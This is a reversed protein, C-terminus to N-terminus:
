DNGKWSKNDEESNMATLLNINNDKLLKKGECGNCIFAVFGWIDYGAQSLKQYINMFTRGTTIEDDVILIKKNKHEESIYFYINANLSHEEQAVVENELKLRNKYAIQLPLNMKKALAYAPIIGRGALGIILGIQQESLLNSLYIAADDLAKYNVSLVGGDYESNVKKGIKDKNFGSVYVIKAKEM